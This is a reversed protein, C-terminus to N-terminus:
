IGESIKNWFVKFCQSDDIPIVQINHDQNESIILVPTELNIDINSILSVVQNRHNFIKQDKSSFNNLVFDISPYKLIEKKIIDIKEITCAQCISNDWFVTFSLSDSVTGIDPKLGSKMKAALSTQSLIFAQNKTFEQCGRLKSQVKDRDLMLRIYSDQSEHLRRKASKNKIVFVLVVLVSFTCLVGSFVKM